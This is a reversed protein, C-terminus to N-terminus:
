TKAQDDHNEKNPCEELISPLGNVKGAMITGCDCIPLRSSGGISRRIAVSRFDDYVLWDPPNEFDIKM